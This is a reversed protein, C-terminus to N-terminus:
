RPGVVYAIVNHQKEFAGKASIADKASAYDGVRVRYWVGKGPIESAMVYAGQPTFRHAFAEAEARDPFSGLQLTFHGKAKAPDAGPPPTAVAVKKAPAAPAKAAAEPKAAPAKAAPEPRAAPPTPPKAAPEAKAAVAPKAQEPKAAVAPKAPEPRTPEV